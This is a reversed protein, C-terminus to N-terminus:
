KPTPALITLAETRGRLPEISVVNWGDLEQAAAVVPQSALLPLTFRKTAQEIRAAVNVPDGLVTFELRTEDGVLGCYVQGAHVGIGVRIPPNFGRKINWRDLLRLLERACALARAPDDARPDPVGFLILAGDGIFKDVVGGTAVAAALVRRRFSALLISLRQPDMHEALATSDRIDVFLMAVQQRRGQRWTEMQDSDVLPAIENPLFRALNARRATETVAQVLLARARWMGLAGILGTLSLLIGRVLTPPMSLLHDVHQGAGSTPGHPDFGLVSVSTALGVVLLVTGWIQVGLRYRLAGLALLLPALWLGPLLPLWNGSLPGTRLVAYLGASVVGADIATLAFAMWTRFLRARALLFSVLGIVLFGGLAILVVHVPEFALSLDSPVNLQFSVMVWTLLVLAAAMRVLGIMREVEFEADSILKSVLSNSKPM